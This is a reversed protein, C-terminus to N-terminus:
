CSSFVDFAMTFYDTDYSVSFTPYLSRFGLHDRATPLLLTTMSLFVWFDAFSSLYHHLVLFLFAVHNQTVHMLTGSSLTFETTKDTSGCLYYLQQLPLLSLYYTYILFAIARAAHQVM